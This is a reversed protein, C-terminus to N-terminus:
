MFIFLVCVIIPRFIEIYIMFVFHVYDLFHSSFSFM